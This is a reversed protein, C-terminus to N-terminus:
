SIPHLQYLLAVIDEDTGKAVVRATPETRRDDDHTAAAAINSAFVRYYRKFHRLVMLADSIEPFACTPNGRWM